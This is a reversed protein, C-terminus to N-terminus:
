ATKVQALAAILDELRVPKSIYDNMGAAICVDRYGNMVDATMAIIYPQYYEDAHQRIRRSTEMGDLEPMHVDMLIVDYPQRKLAELVQLGTGAIDARYGLRQLIRLGVKQNVINDEALLIRLSSPTVNAPGFQSPLQTPAVPLSPRDVIRLLADRLQSQKVPKNLVAVGSNKSIEGLNAKGMSTLLVLPLQKTTPQNRVATVLATGDMEPMRMDFIAMDFVAGSALQALAEAGSAVAVATMGWRRTQHLLITRNVATDDVILIQKGQLARVDQATTPQAAVAATLLTFHFTSGKGVESEVWMSGGMLESLRKSIALGLGTGGYKRATSTDVQSFSQFLRNMREQPIGIGTDRVAFHLEYIPGPHEHVAVIQPDARGADRSVEGISQISVTVVVEGQETFKMANGVLNVLIQRLRTEDGAIIHPVREDIEYALELEKEAAKPGFLDLTSEICETLVFPQAEVELKDSEIKSFDLIDNIVNLLNDSGTRITEVFDRQEATLQMDLLLSTMGVVANIPTRIEHSMNALFESKALTAAEAVEKAQRLESEVIKLGTIDRSIGILGVIAGNSDLLPLKTTLVWLSQDADSSLVEIQNVIPQGGELVHAETLAFGAAREAPFFDFDTKGIVRDLSITEQTHHGLLALHAANVTIFQGQNNKVYIYDPLHDMLTRLLNRETALADEAQKRKTIETAVSVIYDAQANNVRDPNNVSDKDLLLPRKVYQFWHLNGAVDLARYPAMVKEEGSELGEDDEQQSQQANGFVDDTLVDDTRGILDSPKKGVFTALAQNVLVFRNARDKVAIHIPLTDLVDHMFKEQQRLQEAIRKRAIASGLSSALTALMSRTSDSWDREAQCDDFGIFGWFQGDILIPTALISLIGQQELQAREDTPFNRVFGEIPKGQSLLRHWREFHHDYSINQLTPNLIRPADSPRVWEFRQSSVMQRTIPHVHNEFVYVRDIEIAQGLIQLAYNVGAAYDAATLLHATAEAVARFLLDRKQLAAEAQKRATIDTFITLVQECNEDATALPLKTVQFWQINGQRDPLCQDAYSTRQTTGFLEHDTAAFRDFTTQDFYPSVVEGLQKGLVATATVGLFKLFAQNVHVYRGDCDKVTVLNPSTDLINQVFTQQERLKVETHHLATVEMVYVNIYGDNLLPVFLASYSAGTEPCAYDFRIKEHKQLIENLIDYWIPPAHMTHEVAFKKLHEVGAPNAYLVVGSRSIRFVPDPNEDSIRAQARKRQSAQRHDTMRNIFKSFIKMDLMAISLRIQMRYRPIIKRQASNDSRGVGALELGM